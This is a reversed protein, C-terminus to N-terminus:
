RNNACLTGPHNAEVVHCLTCVGDEAFGHLAPLPEPPDNSFQRTLASRHTASSLDRSYEFKTTFRIEHGDAALTGTFVSEPADPLWFASVLSFKSDLMLHKDAM